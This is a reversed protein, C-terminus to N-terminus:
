HYYSWLWYAYKIYEISFYNEMQLSKYLGPLKKTGETWLFAVLFPQLFQPDDQLIWIEEFCMLHSEDAKLQILFNRM